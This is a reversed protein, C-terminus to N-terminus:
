ADACGGKCRWGTEEPIRGKAWELSGDLCKWAPERHPWLRNAKTTRLPIVEAARGCFVCYVVVTETKDTSMPAETITAM